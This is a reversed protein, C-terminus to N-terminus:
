YYERCQQQYKSDSPFCTLSRASKLLRGSIWIVVRDPKLYHQKEKVLTM